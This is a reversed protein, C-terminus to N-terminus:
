AAPLSDLFSRIAEASERPRRQLVLHPGPIAVVTVSPKLRRIEDVATSVVFQDSAAQLYLIPKDCIQLARRADASIVNETRWARVEPKLSLLATTISEVLIDPADEGVLHKRVLPPTPEKHLWPKSFFSTAWRGRPGLPNSVFCGALVVARINQRQEEVFRLALPGATSEAVLVYPHGWPIVSRICAFLEREPVVQDAPYTVVSTTFTSPLVSQFPAFLQGTGDLGPLLVLRHQGTDAMRLKM